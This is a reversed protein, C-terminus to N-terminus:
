VVPAAVWNTVVPGPVQVFNTVVQVVPPLLPDGLHVYNTVVVPVSVPAGPTLVERTLARTVPSAGTCGALLMALAALGFGRLVGQWADAWGFSVRGQGGSLTFKSSM